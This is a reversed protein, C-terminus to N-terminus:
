WRGPLLREVVQRKYEARHLIRVNAVTHVFRGVHLCCAVRELRKDLCHLLDQIRKGIVIQVAKFISLVKVLEHLNNHM